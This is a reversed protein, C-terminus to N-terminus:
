HHSPVCSLQFSRIVLIQHKLTFRSLGGGELLRPDDDDRRCAFSAAQCLKAGLDKAPQHADYAISAKLSNAVLM